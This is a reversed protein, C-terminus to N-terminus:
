WQIKASTREVYYRHLIPRIYELLISKHEQESITPFWLSLDKLLSQHVEFKRFVDISLMKSIIILQRTDDSIQESFKSFSLFNFEETKHKLVLVENIKLVLTTIPQFNSPDYLLHKGIDITTNTGSLKRELYKIVIRKM